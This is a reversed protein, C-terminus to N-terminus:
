VHEIEKLLAEYENVLIGRYKSILHDKYTSPALGGFDKEILEKIQEVYREILAKTDNHPTM